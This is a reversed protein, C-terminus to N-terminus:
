PSPRGYQLNVVEVADAGSLTVVCLNDYEDYATGISCDGADGGLAEIITPVTPNHSVVLVVEGAHDAKLEAAFAEIQEATSNAYLLPDLALADALPQATQRTRETDTRYITTVGAKRAVHALEVARELGRENLSGDDREAHRVLLIMTVRAPPRSCGAAVSLVILVVTVLASCTQRKM